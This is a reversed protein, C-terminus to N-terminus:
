SKYDPDIYFFPDSAMNPDLSRKIMAMWKDYNYCEPGFRKHAETGFGAIPIGFAKDVAAKMGATVLDGAAVVSEPRGPNYLGIGELYGMHGSEFTGGCGLDGEDNLILGKAMADKKEEAVWNSQAVGLDWTDFAGLTTFMGQSPRFCGQTNIAHRLLLWYMKSWARRSKLRLLLWQLAPIKRLLVLPDKIYKFIFRFPASKIVKLMPQLQKESPQLNMPLIVGGTEKLIEKLAKIKWKYEGESYCVIASVLVHGAIKQFIGSELLIKLDRNNETIGEAAFFMPTRFQSYDLEAEGLLYGADQMAKSSPFALANMAMRPPIEDVYYEPSSGRVKYTAPGDWKYLKVACKTFVGLGGMTGVFGRVIGRMSPGPGDATFWGAKSGESGINIIEGTPLVWEVGLLNRGSYSMSSGTLGYGWASTTSALVSHNGGSSVVHVNLGHKFLETQLDVAKVYPEIVAIQNKVDIDIIKNMRKLDLVIVRDRSAAAWTGFGTSIPKVMLDTTNCLQIIKQIEATSAPMVVASPRPAFRGGDKILVEPNMYLSYTDMMCPATEVWEEGVIDELKKREDHNIMIQAKKLRSIKYSSGKCIGSGETLFIILIM